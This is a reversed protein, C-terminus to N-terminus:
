DLGSRHRSSRWRPAPSGGDDLEPFEAISAVPPEPALWVLGYCEVVGAPPALRARPPLHDAPGLAPIEACRGQATFCWGHYGCRLVAEGAVEDVWGASLPALRHPCRDPFAAVEGALRVLVWDEGLLRATVPRGEVDASRAVPHWAQRLAPHDNTLRDSLGRAEAAVDLRSADTVRDNM